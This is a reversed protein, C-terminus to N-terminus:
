RHIRMRDLPWFTHTVVGIMLDEPVAFPSHGPAGTSWIRSDYARLSFDGLVFYEDASLQAPKLKSGWIEPTRPYQDLYQIGGLREPLELQKGDVFVAGSELHVTEGPMGILRMVYVSKLDVPSTFVVLDWRKPRITKLVLIRDAQLIKRSEPVSSTVHFNDCIGPTTGNRAAPSTQTVPNSYRTVGCVDCVSRNSPGLVTPAMSNSSILFSEFLLPRAVIFVFIIPVVSALLTPLWAGIAPLIKIRFTRAIVFPPMFFVIAVMSTAVVISRVLSVSVPIQYVAFEFPLQLFFITLTAWCINRWTVNSAKTWGLGFRLLWGWSVVYLLFIFLLYVFLLVTSM